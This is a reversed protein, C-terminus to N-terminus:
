VSKNRSFLKKLRGSIAAFLALLGIGIAKFLGKGAGKAVAAAAGGTVLAALGYTALKDGSRYEAYTDGSNYQFGELLSEFEDISADLNAPEAVLTASIVGTRGLLRTNFNVIEQGESEALVAWSLRNTNENYFPRYQWDVIQMESWGRKSRERNGVETSSRISKLLADADIEDDDKVHGTHEYSFVAFWRSDEPGVYYEGGYSPNEYLEMLKKTDSDDLRDFGQPLEITARPTLEFTGPGATWNLSSYETLYDPSEQANSVGAIVLMAICLFIKSTTM